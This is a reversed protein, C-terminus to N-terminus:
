KDDAVHVREQASPGSCRLAGNASGQHVSEAWPMVLWLVALLGQSIESSEGHRGAHWSLAM